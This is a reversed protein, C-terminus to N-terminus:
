NEVKARGYIKKGENSIQTIDSTAMDLSFLLLRKGPVHVGPIKILTADNFEPFLVKLKRILSTSYMEFPHDSNLQSLLVRHAESINSDVARLALVRNHPNILLQIYQPRELVNLTNKFVRIRNKKIDVSISLSSEPLTM